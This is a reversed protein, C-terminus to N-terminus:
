DIEVPYFTEPDVYAYDHGYTCIRARIYSPPCGQEPKPDLLIREVTRGDRTTKGEDRARGARIARRLDALPNAGGSGRTGRVRALRNPPVFQLTQYPVNDTFGGLEYARGRSCQDLTVIDPPEPYPSMPDHMLARYRQTREDVWVEGTTRVTCRPHPPTYTWNELNYTSKTVWKQPLILGAPPTLAAQARELFRPSDSWPATFFLAAAAAVALTAAVLLPRMAFVRGGFRRTRESAADQRHQREAA